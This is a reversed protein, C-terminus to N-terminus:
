IDGNIIDVVRQRDFLEGDFGYLQEAARETSVLNTIPGQYFSGAQYVDGNQVATLDSAVDHNEMHTLFTERFEAATKDEYGFLFLVEPDSELLTEYDLTGRSSM